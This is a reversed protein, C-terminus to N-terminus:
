DKRIFLISIMPFLFWIFLAQSSAFALDIHAPINLLMESPLTNAIISIILGLQLMSILGVLFVSSERMSLRVKVLSKNLVGFVVLYIVFFLGIKILGSETKINLVGAVHNIYPFTTELVFAIYIALLSVLSRTRGLSLGWVLVFVVGLFFFLIGPGFNLIGMDAINIFRGFDFDPM